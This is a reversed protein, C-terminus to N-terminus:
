ENQYGSQQVDLSKAFRRAFPRLPRRM